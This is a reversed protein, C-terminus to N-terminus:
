SFSELRVFDASFHGLVAAANSGHATGGAEKAMFLIKMDHNVKHYVIQVFSQSQPM